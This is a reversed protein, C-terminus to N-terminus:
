PFLRHVQEDFRMQEVLWPPPEPQVPEGCLVAICFLGMLVFLGVFFM